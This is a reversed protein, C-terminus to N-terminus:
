HLIWHQADLSNDLWITVATGAATSGGTDDLPLQGAQNLLKYQGNALDMFQWNQNTDNATCDWLVVPNKPTSSGGANDLCLGSGANQLKFWGRGQSQVQWEQAPGAISGTLNAALVAPNKDTGTTLYLGAHVNQLAYTSKDTPLNNWRESAYYGVCQNNSNYASALELINSGDTAPLLATSYNPCYNDTPNPVTVPAAITYWPGSGDSSLNVFMQSGGNPDVAGTSDFMQQGMLLLAGNIGLVSPSWVNTPAHEFYQGSATQVKTGTDGPTGFNWGDTSTRYFVTCSAPGCLEYSMFYVGSPLKTVVAMGPRDAQIGSAVTNTRDQWTTGNYTRIQSIKQSCCSDTEDSWFMVLAGDNAVTFQPEWFGHGVYGGGSVPMSSYNWTQGGDTSTNVEIATSRGSGYYYTAAYLLTGAQLTGVTQPLEYLTGSGLHYGYQSPVTGTFTWQLTGNTSVPAGTSVSINGDTSAVITGNTASSGHALRVLRPYYTSNPLYTGGAGGSGSVPQSTVFLVNKADNSQFGVYTTNGFGAAAPGTPGVITGPYFAPSQWNIGDTSTSVLMEHTNDNAEYVYYLYNADNQAVVALAPSSGWAMTQGALVASSFNVGDTSSSIFVNNSSDNARFAVYLLGNFVAMAPDSGIKVGSIPYAAPWTVGDSSRTVFLSHSADDAQFAIYLQNNFLAMAPAGGLDINNYGTATPFNTGTPSSTVQLAGNVNVGRFAVFLRNNFQAMAPASSMLLNNYGTATPFNSGTPSSTVQLAGSVGVGGFGAYLSGHFAALAPKTATIDNPQPSAAAPFSDQLGGNGGDTPGIYYSGETLKNTTFLVNRTDNAQFGVTVGNAFAAAGPGKAGMQVGLYAEPGQWTFGDVSSTVLMEHDTDNADYICYLVGNAAVLAPSSYASMTLGPLAQSTFHIGDTSSAIFVSNSSDDARFAVYLVDNFVTMAPDSGIHINPIYTADPWNVGDTSSAVFLHHNIDNAQFALFLQSNFVTMAPAGGLTINSHPTAHPFVTGTPSSTVFLQHSADDAQFAVFLQGNFQAMGPASGITVGPSPTAPPFNTGTPSSTVFLSHTTDDARFAVYLSGNCSQPLCTPVFTALAPKSGMLVGTQQTAPTAFGDQPGNPDSPGTYPGAPEVIGSGQGGASGGSSDGQYGAAVINAQVANEAADAPYGSTMAGEFFAGQGWDSNDGGTGLVIAGELHMPLYSPTHGTPLSGSYDTTLSGGQANGGKLAFTDVGNNKLMATVFNYPMSVDNINNNNGMYQGNELDAQVWPGTGSCPPYGCFTGFNLADMTGNNDDNSTVEVNGYDFCCGGNTFAPGGNMYTGSTVMYMGEPSQNTSVGRTANNRYGVGPTVKVGYVSNGNVTIPLANAVAGSDATHVTGGPGEINLHNQYSSQDYIITITCTTSACFADQSAANAYGGTALTGIDLTTNDSARKVQYLRGGYGSFLARVTSHAAVCPTGGTSYLDCPSTGSGTGTGGGNVATTPTIVQYYCDKTASGSPNGFVSTNCAVGGDFVGYNFQKTGTATTTGYAIRGLGKFQCVGTDGACFQYGAPGYHAFAYGQIAQYFCGKHVGKAPDGQSSFTTNVDCLFNNSPSSITISYKGGGAIVPTANGEYSCTEGEDACYVSGVQYQAAGVYYGIPPSIFCAKVVGSIPDPQNFASTTCATSNTFTVPNTYKGNAGFVVNRDGTFICTGNETACLTYTSQNNSDCDPLGAGGTCPPILAQLNRRGLAQLHDVLVGATDAIIMGFDPPKQIFPTNDSVIGTVFNYDYRHDIGDQSEKVSASLVACHGKSSFYGNYGESGPPPNPLNAPGRPSTCEYYTSYVGVTNLSGNTVTYYLPDATMFEGPTGKVGVMPSLLRYFSTANDMWNTWDDVAWNANGSANEQDIAINAQYVPMFNMYEAMDAAAQTANGNYSPATALLNAIDQPSNLGLRVPSFKFVVQQSIYGIKLLTSWSRVLSDKDRIDM